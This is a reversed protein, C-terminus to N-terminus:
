LTGWSKRRSTGGVRTWSSRAFFYASFEERNRRALEFRLTQVVSVDLEVHRAVRVRRAESECQHHPIEEHRRRYAEDVYERLEKQPPQDEDPGGAFADQM